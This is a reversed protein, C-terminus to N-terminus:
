PPFPPSKFLFQQSLSSLCIPFAIFSINRVSYVLIFELNFRLFHFWIPVLLFYPHLGKNGLLPYFKELWSLLIFSQYLQSYFSLFLKKLFIIKLFILLVVKLHVSSNERRYREGCNMVPLMKWM